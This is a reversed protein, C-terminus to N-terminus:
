FSDEFLRNLQGLDISLLEIKLNLLAQRVILLM